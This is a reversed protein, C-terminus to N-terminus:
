RRYRRPLGCADPGPLDRPSEYLNGVGKHVNVERNVGHEFNVVVDMGSEQPREARVERHGKRLYPRYDHGCEAASAGASVDDPKHVARGTHM